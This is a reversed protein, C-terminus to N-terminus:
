LGKNVSPTTVIEPPDSDVEPDRVEPRIDLELLIEAATDTVDGVIVSLTATKCFPLTEVVPDIVEPKNDLEELIVEAVLTEATEVTEAAVMVSPVAMRKAPDSEM